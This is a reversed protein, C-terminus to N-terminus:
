CKFFSPKHGRILAGRETSAREKTEISMERGTVYIVSM